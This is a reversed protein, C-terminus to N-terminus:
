QLLVCSTNYLIVSYLLSYNNRSMLPVTISISVYCTKKAYMKAQIDVDDSIDNSFIHGMYKFRNLDNAPNKSELILTCQKPNCQMINCLM